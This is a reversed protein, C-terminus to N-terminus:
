ERQADEKLFRQAEKFHTRVDLRLHKLWSSSDEHRDRAYLALAYAYEPMCLYGQRGMTWGSLQGHTWNSERIVSNATFIGMGLFVTLLDTLPEHDEEETTIRGFGLLHVHCLEHSITAILALPDNLNGVDIWIRFKDEEAQYLGATGQKDEYFSLEIRRPDIELFSCVRDLMVRGDAEKGHYDDPFFEATPLILTSQTLRTKGFQETLWAWRTDIWQRTGPDVPCTAPKSRFWGFM